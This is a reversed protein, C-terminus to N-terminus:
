WGLRQKAQQAAVRTDEMKKAFLTTFTQVLHEPPGSELVERIKDSLGISVLQKLSPVRSLTVYCILWKIDSAVRPPLVWHAVLGPTATMGQMSYLPLVKAPALPLQGRKVNVYKGQLEPGDYKWTRRLPEVAFVGRLAERKGMCASCSDTYVPCATCPQFPLFVQECGHLKILVAVLLKRLLVEPPPSELVAGARSQWRAQDEDAAFHIELVTGTADQVAYPMDLTTTLRVEMGIHLLCFAPLMKTKTLSSVQLLAHYFKQIDSIESALLNQPVDVAQIYFLLKQAMRASERAEVFAAMSIVSWLYCTHYWGTVDPQDGGHDEAHETALLAQWDSNSLAQGGVTRMTHLIRILTPDTFRMMKQLQFVYHAQRFIAAGVRHEQSTGALPALLSNAKPVAPLQLHDGCYALVPMRGFRERPLAYDERRLRFKTERAYAALLSAAHNMAGPLMSHEDFLMAGAPLFTRELKVRKQTTLALAATRLSSDPTFGLLAHVTKAGIGRAAKNSPAARVVGAPGFFALSVPALYHNILMTKGCGGGGDIVIDFLWTDLALYPEEPNPRRLFAEQLKDVWLAFLLLQEENLTRKGEGQRQTEMLLEAVHKPGRMLEPLPITVCSAEAEQEHLNKLAALMAQLDDPKADTDVANRLDTQDKKMASRVTRQHSLAAAASPDLLGLPAEAHQHSLPPLTATLTSGFKDAFAKMQM